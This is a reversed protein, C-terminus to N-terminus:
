ERASVPRDELSYLSRNHRWVPAWTFGWWFVGKFGLDGSIKMTLGLNPIDKELLQYNELHDVERGQTPPM